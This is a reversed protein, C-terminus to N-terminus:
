PRRRADLRSGLAYGGAATRHITGAAELQSICLLLQLAPMGAQRAVRELAGGAVLAPLWEPLDPDESPPPGGGCLAVLEAVRPVCHAGESLLRLCGEGWRDGVRAPVAAVERGEELAERATILAGSKVGAEVVITWESLGAIWRNRTAFRYPRPNVGDPWVSLVAGGARLMAERLNRHHAPYTRHLGHGLVALTTGQSLAGRHAEADIGEALGSVVVWGADAFQRGLDRAVSRGYPTCRRTGVVAVARQRLLELNGEVCVFAPPHRTRRLAAPYRGDALTLVEGRTSAPSTRSLLAVQGENLGLESWGQTREALAWAAQEYTAFPCSKRGALDQLAIWRGPIDAM